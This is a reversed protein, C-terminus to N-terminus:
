LPNPQFSEVASHSLNSPASAALLRQAYDNQPQVVRARLEPQAYRGHLFDWDVGDLTHKMDAEACEKASLLKAMQFHEKRVFYTFLITGVFLPIMAAAATSARKLGLMGIITVQSIMMGWPVFGFFKLWLRGGSDPFPPYIHVLQNLICTKQILFCALMFYNSIPAITTYVFYVMFYLVTFALWYSHYFKVPDAFPRLGMFTQQRERETKNPGICSRLTALVIPTLRLLEFSMYTFTQVLMIQIFFSSQGPLSSALLQIVCSPTAVVDSLVAFISGSIASIFFTQVINFWYLKTFMRAQIVAGSIPGELMTLLETIAYMLQAAMVILLPALQNFFPEVEPYKTLLEDLWKSQARLGNINAISAIFAMPITWLFCAAVTLTMSVVTFFKLEQHPRGVNPWVIDEPSPAESVKIAYSQPYQIMQLAAYVGRLTTFTVFGAPLVRGDENSVFDLIARGAERVVQESWEEVSSAVDFLTDAVADIASHHSANSEPVSTDFSHSNNTGYAEVEKLQSIKENDAYKDGRTNETENDGNSLLRMREESSAGEIREVDHSGTSQGYVNAREDIRDIADSVAQNHRALEAYLSCIEDNDEQLYYYQNYNSVGRCRNDEKEKLDIARELKNLVQSRQNQLSKLNSVTVALQASEVANNVLGAQFFEKMVNNNLMEEPVSRVYVTFNRPKLLTLFEHRTKTFWDFERLMMYMVFVFIFYAAVVTGYFRESGSPINSISVMAVPDHKVLPAVSETGYVPMLWISHLIGFLSLKIGFSFIRSYCLADMGCEDRLEHDPIQFLKWMWGVFGRQDAALSTKYKEVWNRVNYCKPFIKRLVCFALLSVGFLSGYVKLTHFIVQTDNQDATAPITSNIIQSACSSEPDILGEVFVM